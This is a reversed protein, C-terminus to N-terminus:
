YNICCVATARTEQVQGIDTKRLDQCACNSFEPVRTRVRTKLVDRWRAFWLDSARRYMISRYSETDNANFDDVWPM